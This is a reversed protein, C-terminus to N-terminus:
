QMYDADATPPMEDADAEQLATLKDIEAVFSTCKDIFIKGAEEVLVHPPLAGTSEVSFIFHDKVRMLKVRDNWEPERICERCMTCNRPRAVVATKKGMLDEIDFVNMPCKDVLTKADKGTVPKKFQIDPLLRYSATAVPSWKAHTKGIGKVCHAELDIEQGPRLKAILIDDHIPAPSKAFTGVEQDGQPVWELASSYVNSNTYREKPDKSEIGHNRTCRVNLKFTLTNTDTGEEDKGRFEFPRPDVNIPILGLRHALVEDQIVSTNNSLYIHEIAITPVESILIRRIANAISPDVGILDFVLLDEDPEWRRIKVKIGETLDEEELPQGFAGAARVTSTWTPTDTKCHVRTRREELRESLGLRGGGSPGKDKKDM